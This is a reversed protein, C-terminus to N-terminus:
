QRAEEPRALRPAVEPARGGAAIPARASGYSGHSRPQPDCTFFGSGRAVKHPTAGSTRGRPV